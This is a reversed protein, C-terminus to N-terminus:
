FRLQIGFGAPTGYVFGNGYGYAPVVRPYRTVEHHYARRAQRYVRAEHRLDHRRQRLEHQRHHKHHHHDKAEAAPAMALATTGIVGACLLVNPLQKHVFHIPAAFPTTM